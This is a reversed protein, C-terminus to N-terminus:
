DNDEFIDGFDSDDAGSDESEDVAEVESGDLTQKLSLGLRRREPEIRIIKLELEDGENVVDRPHKIV